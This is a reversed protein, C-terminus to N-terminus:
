YKECVLYYGSTLINTEKYKQQLKKDRRYVGYEKKILFSLKSFIKALILFFFNGIKYLNCQFSVRQLIVGITEMANAEEGLELIKWDKFLEKLGYKTFRWYDNPTEHLPFIFRTTLILKGKPKLVRKIESIAIQPNIFHELAEICLIIDYQNDKFPLKHADGVLDVDKGSKVDFGVRNPFYSSYPSHGCGLDLTFLNSKNKEIFVNLHKRTMKDKLSELM